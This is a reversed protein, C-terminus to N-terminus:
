QGLKTLDKLRQSLARIILQSESDPVPMGTSQPMTPTPVPTPVPAGAQPPMASGTPPSAPQTMPNFNPSNPTVQNLVSQGAGRQAMVTQLPSQGGLLPSANGFSAQPDM